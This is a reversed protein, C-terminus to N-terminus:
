CAFENEQDFFSAGGGKCQFDLGEDFLPLSRGNFAGGEVLFRDVFEVEFTDIHGIDGKFFAVERFADKLFAQKFAGEKVVGRKHFAGEDAAMAFTKSKIGAGDPM